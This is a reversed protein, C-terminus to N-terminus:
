SCVCIRASSILQVTVFNRLLSACLASQVLVKFQTMLEQATSTSLGRPAVLRALDAGNRDLWVAQNSLVADLQHIQALEAKQKNLKSETNKMVTQHLNKLAGVDLPSKQQVPGPEATESMSLFTEEIREFLVNLMDLEMQNLELRMVGDLTSFSALQGEDIAMNECIQHENVHHVVSLDADCETLTSQCAELVGSVQGHKILAFCIEE